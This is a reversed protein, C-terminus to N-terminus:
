QCEAFSNYIADKIDSAIKCIQDRHIQLYCVFYRYYYCYNINEIKGLNVRLMNPSFM